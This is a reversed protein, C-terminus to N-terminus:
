DGARDRHSGLHDEHILRAGGEVRDRCRLDLVQHVLQGRVVRDHDDRVVHLLRSPHAMLRGEEGSLHVLLPDPEPTQDLIVLGLLDEGVRAFLPGLVEERTPEPLGIAYTRAAPTGCARGPSPRAAAAPESRTSMASGSRSRASCSAASNAVCWIVANT